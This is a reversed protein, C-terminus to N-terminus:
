GSDQRTLRPPGVKASVDVAPVGLGETDLGPRRDVRSRPQLDGATQGSQQPPSRVEGTATIEPPIKGVTEVPRVTSVPTRSQLSM